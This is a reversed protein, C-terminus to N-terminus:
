EANNACVIVDPYFHNENPTKVKFGEIYVEYNM